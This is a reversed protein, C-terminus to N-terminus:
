KKSHGSLLNNKMDWLRQSLDVYYTQPNEFRLTEGWLTELQQQCYERIEDVSPSEYVCKGKDFLQVHLDRVYYNTVTTRKWVANPDFIEYEDQEPVTEQALTIVDGRAKGTEKDYLRFLNKFGPNTIKEINESIKIKPVVVGDTELAVLKYVGGFVPQSKATILREGVGFSDICAGEMIVDRIIYEDLSNSVVIQCDQLGAEDLMVRAKKTLYAVDGSDIRIGMKAPKMEKFVKIANPVGSKLVNYTDVLLTCNEPYIEAYKKFASYEDPFMQVWSHAMTGTSKIGYDRDAITCATAACGGIYAARAGYIAADGGHARRTGFEMVPRGMAARAIRSAKTAILSQHNITLLIMTEIFQAQIVPGRVTLIPEHPFIPTGEPVAWVDCTFEFNALYELFEECFIGKNRLFEVDEETFKLNKLYDIVQEVGAMIAYGGGDPVRRFFMDFYAINDAMGTEFYGNAMTIEYFDTLMTLNMKKDM